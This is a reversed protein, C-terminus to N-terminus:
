REIREITATDQTGARTSVWIGDPRVEERYCTEPAAKTNATFCLEAPSKQVWQGQELVTRAENTFIYTGDPKLEEILVSGSADTARYLGASPGGDAATPAPSPQVEIEPTEAAQETAPTCAALMVITILVIFKQM